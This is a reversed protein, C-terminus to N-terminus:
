PGKGSPEQRAAVRVGPSLDTIVTSGRAVSAGDGIALNEAVGVRENIVVFDGITVGGAIGSQAGVLCHRGITAGNAVNALNGVKTGEGVVTDRISGRDITANAGIEVDDQIIVRRTQPVKDLGPLDERYVSGDHGLRAGPHLAVGDGILANLVTAGAGIACHRGVCADPGIVAGAAIVTGSGVVARPGIVALPDITVGAEIRASPHVRAGEARGSAGFLSSPRLAEPFLALAVVVFARYPEDNLLVTLRPPASAAFRPAILCAGARTEALERLYHPDDLFCIDAAGASDLSAINGIRRAAAGGEKLKSGTLGAIDAVALKRDSQRLARM